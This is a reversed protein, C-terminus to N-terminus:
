PKPILEVVVEAHQTEPFFDFLAANKIQYSKFKLLDKKLQLPNCSIYIISKPQLKNITEITKQDMGSRPPDVIIYLPHTCVVKHLSHADRCEVHVHSLGQANIKAYESSIKNEEILTVTKFLEANLLGFTGVGAFVDLLQANKTEHSLLLKHCYQHMKDALYLNNQFFGIAPFQFVKNMLTSQLYPNGKIMAYPELVGATEELAVVINDASSVSAFKTIEEITGAIRSSSADLVFLIASNDAKRLIAKKLTGSKKPSFYPDSFSFKSIEKLLLNLEDVMIPCCDINVIGGKKNRLGVHNDEFIFDMRNRYKYPPSAFIQINQQATLHEVSRGKNAIQNEYSIHQLSCGGCSGFYPCEPRMSM